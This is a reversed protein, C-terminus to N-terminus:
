CTTVRSYSSNTTRGGVKGGEREEGGRGGESLIEDIRLDMTCASGDLTDCFCVMERRELVDKRQEREEIGISM